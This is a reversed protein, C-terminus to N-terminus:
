CNPPQTSRRNMVTMYVARRTQAALPKRHIVVPLVPGCEPCFKAIPWLKTGCSTCTKSHPTACDECSKAQATDEHKLASM